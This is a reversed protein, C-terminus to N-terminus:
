TDIDDKIEQATTLTNTIDKSANNRHKKTFVISLASVIVGVVLGIIGYFLSCIYGIAGLIFGLVFWKNYLSQGKKMSILGCIGGWIFGSIVSLSITQIVTFTDFLIKGPINM